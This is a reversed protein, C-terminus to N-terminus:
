FKTILLKFNIDSKPYSVIKNTQELSCGFPEM